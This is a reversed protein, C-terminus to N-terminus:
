EPHTGGDFSGLHRPLPVRLAALSLALTQYYGVLFILEVLKTEGLERYAREFLHDSLDRHETLARVVELVIVEDPPLSGTSGSSQVARIEDDTLGYTRAHREHAVREFECDEAAATALIALERERDTLSTRYRISAGLEQLSSGVSPCALMANFPGELRGTGDASMWIGGSSTRPGGTIADYLRRADPSLDAPLYWELRGHKEPLPQDGPNSATPPDSM